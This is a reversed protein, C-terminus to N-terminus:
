DFRPDTFRVSAAVAKSTTSAISVVRKFLVVDGDREVPVVFADDATDVERAM